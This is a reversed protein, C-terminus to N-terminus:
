VTVVVKGKAKRDMLLRIAKGAHALPIHESVLPKLKGESIMHLLEQLTKRAHGPDRAAMAGWFVGVIQCGKLLTLNLPVKPIQGAAFGIVLYRGNWNM